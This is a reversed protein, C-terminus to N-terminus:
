AQCAAGPGANGPDAEVHRRGAIFESRWIALESNLGSSRANLFARPPWRSSGVAQIPVGRADFDVSKFWKARVFYFLMLAALVLATLGALVIWAQPGAGNGSVLVEDQASVLSLLAKKYSRWLLFDPFGMVLSYIGLYIGETRLLHAGPRGLERLHIMFTSWANALLMGLLLISFHAAM